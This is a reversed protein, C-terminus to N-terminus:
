SSFGSTAMEQSYAAGEPCRGPPWLNEITMVVIQRVLEIRESFDNQGMWGKWEKCSRYVRSFLTERVVDNVRTWLWRKRIGDVIAIPVFM